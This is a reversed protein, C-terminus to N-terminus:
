NIASSRRFAERNVARIPPPFNSSGAEKAHEIEMAFRAVTPSRFLALLPVELRHSSHIRSIVQTALLSHGGLSFFNDHIGVKDIRLLQTWMKCLSEELANRPPAFNEATNETKEPAPLAARDIKGNVTLPMAELQVYQKPVMYDPLRTGLFQSLQMGTEARYSKSVVYAVLRPDGPEDERVLVVAQSIEPFILLSEEIEGLEVRHGRIKVQQDIRGLFELGGDRRRRGLDGTKYLRSGAYKSFPDPLFREATLASRKLYGRGVGIGGIYMEGLMGTPVPQMREDLLYLTMNDIPHGLPAYSSGVQVSPQLPQHSIDDSCETAGYTNLLPLAPYLATWRQCLSVPLAEANSIMWRMRKLGLRQEGKEEQQEIMMGLLTPVTELVTVGL